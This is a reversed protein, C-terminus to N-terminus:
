RGRSPSGLTSGNAAEIMQDFAKLLQDNLEGHGPRGPFWDDFDQESFRGNSASIFAKRWYNRAHIPDM